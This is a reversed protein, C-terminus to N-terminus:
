EASGMAVASQRASSEWMVTMAIANDWIVSAGAEVSRHVAPVMSAPIVFVSAVNQANVMDAVTQTGTVNTM